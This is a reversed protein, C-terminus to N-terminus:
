VVARSKTLAGLMASEPLVMFHPGDTWLLACKVTKDPYTHSLVDFYAGMQALYPPAVGEVTRPPPRDTKYDIIWVTDETIRMRDIRGNIILGDPLNPGRGVIPAEARGGTGFVPALEPDNLVGFATELVDEFLVTEDATLCRSLFKRARADREAEPVDPLIELLAHILRGRQFRKTHDKGFPPLVPTDGPLLQSPARQETRRQAPRIARNLWDPLEPKALTVDRKKEVSPAKPLSGLSWVGSGADTRADDGFEPLARQCLDFWSGETYGQGTDKGRWAGCVILQDRARTLAVYLLRLSEANQRAKEQERVSAVIDCELGPRDLWIPTQNETFVLEGSLRDPPVGTTDPLIVIPAELGKAGHVTMVRIEGSPGSLERKISSSQLEVIHLFRQLSATDFDDMGGAIGQLAEIPDKAPSGFRRNILQWGTLGTPAHRTQLLFNLFEFAPLHRVALCTKLFATASHHDPHESAQLSAWLSQTERGNAIPFLQTDDDLLGIFPGKLIEALTLDDEPCLVFRILNLIDQVVLTELLYIRDAGAVPLNEAKLEKILAEFLPGRSRVLILIDGANVPRVGAPRDETWVGEDSELRESIWRAIRRALLSPASIEREMDLPADWAVGREIKEPAQLPWFEVKGSQDHRFPHHQIYDAETPIESSFAPRGNATVENFVTDVFRLVEPTTRFSMEIEPLHLRAAGPADSERSSFRQREAQFKATDAGQFSYISQKEDGVVFLTRIKDDDSAGAFFESVLANVIKWQDPSTDQAEDLLVHSIGGDLKYLVWQALGQRTLLNRTEIILDDFDLGGYLRKEAEYEELLPKAIAMLATTRDRLRIASMDSMALKMRTTERGGDMSFLEDVLTNELKKTLLSKRFSGTGTLFFQCYLDYATAPDDANLVNILQEARDKDTKSGESQYISIASRIRDGPFHAVMTEQLLDDISMNPADLTLGIHASMAEVSDFGGVFDAIKAANSQVKQRVDALGRGGIEGIVVKLNESSGPKDLLSLFARRAATEWLQSGDLDDLERFGPPIGAELPFRKLVRGAFAHLTEIRLGGPTELAKAFLARAKMLAQTDFQNTTSQQLGSLDKALDEDRMVSWSGLRKFLRQQMESAAAKTYTICLICDPKAGALLLRAVRDILVKTKGSGANASVWVSADPEAAKKQQSSVHDYAQQPSLHAIM